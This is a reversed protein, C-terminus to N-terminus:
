KKNQQQLQALERKLRELDSKQKAKSSAQVNGVNVRTNQVTIAKKLADVRRQYALPNMSSTPLTSRPGPRKSASVYQSYPNSSTKKSTSTKSLSSPVSTPKKPSSTPRLTTGTATVDKKTVDWSQKANIAWQPLETIIANPQTHGIFEIHGTVGDWQLAHINSPTGEWLLDSICINDVYVAKDVVIISLRM